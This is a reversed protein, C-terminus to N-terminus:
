RKEICMVNMVPMATPLLGCYFHSTDSTYSVNVRLSDTQYSSPLNTPHYDTSDIRVVWGCGDGAVPGRDLIIASVPNSCTTAGKKCSSFGLCLAFLVLLSSTTKASIM